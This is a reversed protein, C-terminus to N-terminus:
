RFHRIELIKSQFRQNKQFKLQAVRHGSCYRHRIAAGVRVARLEENACFLRIPQVSLVNYESMDNLSHVNNPLNFLLNILQLWNDPFVLQNAPFEMPCAAFPRWSRRSHLFRAPSASQRQSVLRSPCFPPSLLQFLPHLRSDPARPASPPTVM